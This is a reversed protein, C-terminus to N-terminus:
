KGAKKERMVAVNKRSLNQRLCVKADKIRPNRVQDVWIVKLIPGKKERGIKGRDMDYMKIVNAGIKM